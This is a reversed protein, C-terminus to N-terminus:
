WGFFWELVGFYYNLCDCVNGVEWRVNGWMYGVNCVEFEVFEDIYVDVVVVFWRLLAVWEGLLMVWWVFFVVHVVEIVVDVEVVIVFLVDIVLMVIVLNIVIYVEIV